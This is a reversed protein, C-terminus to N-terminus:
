AMAIARRVAADANIFGAGYTTDYGPNGLDYATTSLISRVQSASLNSNASWVLSAVGTVNPAAASTGNFDTSYDFEVVGNTRMARAAIVESPASITLGQGDNSYYFQRAQRDVAGVSIVNTYRAALNAPFSLQSTGNNGSAIVFLVDDQYQSVLAEFGPDQTYSLSLNVVLRQGPRRNAIMNRTSELLTQDNANADLDIDVNIVPSRWNIGSLGEGNNTNAAIISQVATGHSSSQPGYYQDDRERFFEDRYNNEFIITSRLDSHINGGANLGLGTDGVGILVRDSGTTFRWANQVGMMGLNWQSSFLPDNPTVALNLIRDAFVMSDIGEFLIQRGDSFSIADFMRLGNGPDYAVGGYALSALNFSVTSSQLYSLDIQDRRGNGFDINGNGSIVTLQNTSNLRFTNASLNGVQRDFGVIGNAALTLNYATEGGYQEVSVYYRGVALGTLTIQENQVGSLISSRIRESREFTGNSNLDQYIYLDADRSLGGLNITVNSQTNLQFGYIDREDTGPTVSGLFQRRGNLIGVEAATSVTDGPGSGYTLVNLQYNTSSNSYPIVRLYYEGATLASLNIQDTATGPNISNRLRESLDLQGDLNSDQYLALDADSSLASLIVNVTSITDINFKYLDSSDGDGIFDDVTTNTPRGLDRAFTTSSGAADPTLMLTYAASSDLTGVIVYYTGPTLLPATLRDYQLGPNISGQLLEGSSSSTSLIGDGNLDRMLFIDANGGISLLDVNLNSTANLQFSYIDVPNLTSVTDRRLQRNCVGGLGIATSTDFGSASTTLPFESRLVDEAFPNLNNLSQNNLSQALLNPDTVM